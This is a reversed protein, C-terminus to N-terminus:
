FAVVEVTRVIAMLDTQVIAGVAVFEVFAFVDVVLGGSGVGLACGEWAGREWVAVGYVVCAAYGAGNLVVCARFLTCSHFLIRITCITCIQLLM